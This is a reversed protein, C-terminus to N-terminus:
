EWYTGGGAGRVRRMGISDMADRTAANRARNADRRKVNQAHRRIDNPDCTFVDTGDPLQGDQHFSEGKGCHLCTGKDRPNTSRQFTPM